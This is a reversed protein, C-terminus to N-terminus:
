CSGCEYTLQSAQISYNKLLPHYKIKYAHSVRLTVKVRVDAGVVGILFTFTDPPPYAGRSLYYYAHMMLWDALKRYEKAGM